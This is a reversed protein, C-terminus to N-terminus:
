FILSQSESFYSLFIVWFFYYQLYTIFPVVVYRLDYRLKKGFQKHRYELRKQWNERIAKRLKNGTKFFEQNLNEEPGTSYKDAYKKMQQACSDLSLKDNQM